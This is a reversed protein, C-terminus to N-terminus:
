AFRLPKGHLACFPLDDGPRPREARRCDGDPCRYMGFAVHGGSDGGPLSVLGSQESPPPVARMTGPELLRLLGLERLREIVPEGRRAAALVEELRRGDGTDEAVKRLAPLERCLVSLLEATEM